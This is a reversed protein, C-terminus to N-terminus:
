QLIASYYFLCKLHQNRNKIIAARNCSLLYRSNRENVLRLRDIVNLELIAGRELPELKLKSSYYIGLEADNPM